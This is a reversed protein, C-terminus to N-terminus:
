KGVYRVRKLVIKIRERQEQLKKFFINKFDFLSNKKIEFKKSNGM